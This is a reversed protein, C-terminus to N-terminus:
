EVNGCIKVVQGRGTVTHEVASSCIVGFEVTRIEAWAAWLCVKIAIPPRGEEPAHGEALLGARGGASQM